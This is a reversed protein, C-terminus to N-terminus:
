RGAEERQACLDNRGMEFDKFTKDVAERQQATSASDRLEALAAEPDPACSSSVAWIAPRRLSPVRRPVKAVTMLDSQSSTDALGQMAVVVTMADDSGIASRLLAAAAARDEPSAGPRPSSSLVCEALIARVLPERAVATTRPSDRDRWAGLMEDVADDTAVRCGVLLLTKAAIKVTPAALAERVQAASPQRSQASAKLIERGLKQEEIGSPCRLVRNRREGEIAANIRGSLSDNAYKAVVRKVAAVADPGCTLSLAMAATVALDPKQLAITALTEVDEPTAVLWIAMLAVQGERSSPKKMAERLQAAASDKISADTAVMQTSFVICRAAYTRVLGDHMAQQATFSDREIWAQRVEQLAATDEPACRLNLLLSVAWEADSSRLAKAIDDASPQREPHELASLKSATDAGTSSRDGQAPGCAALGLSLCLLLQPSVLRRLPSLSRM